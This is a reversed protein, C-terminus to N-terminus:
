INIELYEMVVHPIRAEEVQKDILGMGVILFNARVMTIWTNLPSIRTYTYLLILIM